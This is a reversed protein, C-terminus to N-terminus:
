LPEIEPVSFISPRRIRGPYRADQPRMLESGTQLAVNEVHHVNVKRNGLITGTLGTAACSASAAAHSSKLTVPVDVHSLLPLSSKVLLRQRECM